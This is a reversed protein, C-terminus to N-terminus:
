RFQGTRFGALRETTLLAVDQVQKMRHNRRQAWDFIPVSEDYVVFPQEDSVLSARMGDYVIDTIPNSQDTRSLPVQAGIRQSEGLHRYGDKLFGDNFNGKVQWSETIRPKLGRDTVDWGDIRLIFDKTHLDVDPAFNGVADATDFEGREKDYQSTSKIASIIASTFLALRIGHKYTTGFCCPCIGGTTDSQGYVDDYCWECREINAPANNSNWMECVLVREGLIQNADQVWRSFTNRTHQQDVRVVTM